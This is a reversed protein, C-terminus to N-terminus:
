THAYAYSLMGYVRFAVQLGSNNPSSDVVWAYQDDSSSIKVLGFTHSVALVAIAAYLFKRIM